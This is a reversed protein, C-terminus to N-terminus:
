KGHRDTYNFGLTNLRKINHDRCQCALEFAKEYGHEDIKFHVRKAINNELWKAVWYYPEGYRKSIFVGTVGSKNSRRIGVNRNNEAQTVCRLNSINNNLSNGDIHDITMKPPIDGNFIEWIIRHIKHLRKECYVDYYRGNGSKNVCADGKRAKIICGDRGSIWDKNRRLCSESTEDYYFYKGWDPM